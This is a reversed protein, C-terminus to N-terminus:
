ILRGQESDREALAKDVAAELRKATHLDDQIRHTFWDKQATRMRRVLEILEADTM